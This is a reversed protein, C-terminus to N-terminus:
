HYQTIIRDLHNSFLQIEKSSLENQGLTQIGGSRLSENLNRITLAQKINNESYLVGRSNLVIAKKEIVQNALIIDSTIVLDHPIVHKVIYNDAVDFGLEVVVRKIFPSAPITAFHNAVIFLMIKRKQAAKFLIQKVPKPCSDGDIWIQM